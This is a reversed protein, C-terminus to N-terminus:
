PAPPLAGTAASLGAFPRGVLHDDVARIRFGVGGGADTVEGRFRVRDDEAVVLRRPGTAEVVVVMRQLGCEGHHLRYARVGDGQEPAQGLIGPLADPAM